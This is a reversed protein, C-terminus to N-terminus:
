RESCEREATVLKNTENESLVSFMRRLAPSILNDSTSLDFEDRTSSSRLQLLKTRMENESLVALGIPVSPAVLNTSASHTV